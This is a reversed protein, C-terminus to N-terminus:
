KELSLREARAVLDKVFFKRRPRMSTKNGLDHREPEFLENKAFVEVRSRM